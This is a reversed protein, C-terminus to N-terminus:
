PPQPSCGHVVIELTVAVFFEEPVRNVVLRSVAAEIQFPGIEADRLAFVKQLLEQTHSLADRDLLTSEDAGVTTVDPVPADGHIENL